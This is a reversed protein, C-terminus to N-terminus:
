IRFTQEIERKHFNNTASIGLNEDQFNINEETQIAYLGIMVELIINIELPSPTAM